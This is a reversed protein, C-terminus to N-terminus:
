SGPSAISLVVGQVREQIDATSPFEHLLASGALDTDPRQAIRADRPPKWDAKGRGCHTIREGCGASKRLHPLIPTNPASCFTRSPPMAGSSGRWVSGPKM